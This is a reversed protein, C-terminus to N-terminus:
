TSQRQKSRLVIEVVLIGISQPDANQLQDVVFEAELILARAQDPSFNDLPDYDASERATQLRQFAIAAAKLDGLDKFEELSTASLFADRASKHDISRYARVWARKNLGELSLQGALSNAVITALCAFAAYYASSVARNADSKSTDRSMASALKRATELLDKCDSISTM